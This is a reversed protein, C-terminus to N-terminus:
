GVPAGCSPTIEYRVETREGSSVNTRVPGQTNPVAGRETRTMGPRSIVFGAVDRTATMYCPARSADLTADFSVDYSGARVDWNVCPKEAFSSRIPTPGDAWATLLTTRTGSVCVALTGNEDAAGVPSSVAWAAGLAAALGLGILLPAKM